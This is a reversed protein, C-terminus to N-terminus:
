PTKEQPTEAGAARAARQEALLRTLERRTALKDPFRIAESPCTPACKDCLVVCNLPAVVEMVGAEENMAFVGNACLDRCEGCGNCADPDIRPSWEIADRPLGLFTPSNM